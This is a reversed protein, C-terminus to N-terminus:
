FCERRLGVKAPNKAPAPPPIQWTVTIPGHVKKTVATTVELPSMLVECRM